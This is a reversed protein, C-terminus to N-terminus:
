LREIGPFPTNFDNLRVVAEPEFRATRMRGEASYGLSVVVGPVYRSPINLAASVRDPYFGEM